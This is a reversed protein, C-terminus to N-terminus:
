KRTSVFNMVIVNKTRSRMKQTKDSEINPIGGLYKLRFTIDYNEYNRLREISWIEIM